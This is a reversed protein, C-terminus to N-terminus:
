ERSTANRLPLTREPQPSAALTIGKAFPLNDFRRHGTGNGASYGSGRSRHREPTTTAHLERVCAKTCVTTPGQGGPKPLGNARDILARSPARASQPGGSETACRIDSRGQILALSGSEHHRCRGSQLGPRRNSDGGYAESEPTSPAGASAPRLQRISGRASSHHTISYQVLQQTSPGKGHPLDPLSTQRSTSSATPCRTDPMQDQVTRDPDRASSMLDAIQPCRLRPHPTAAGQRPLRTLERRLCTAIRAKRLLRLQPKRNRWFRWSPVHM